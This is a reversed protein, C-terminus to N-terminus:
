DGQIRDLLLERLIPLTDNERDYEVGSTDLLYRFEEIINEQVLDTIMDDCLSKIVEPSTNIKSAKGGTVYPVLTQMSQMLWYFDSLEYWIDLPLSVNPYLQTWFNLSEKLETSTPETM